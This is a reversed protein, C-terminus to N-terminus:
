VDKEMSHGMSKKGKEQQRETQKSEEKETRM